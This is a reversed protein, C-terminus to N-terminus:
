LQFEGALELEAKRLEYRGRGSISQPQLALILFYEQSLMRIILTVRDLTVVLERMRGHGVDDSARQAARIVATAEAAAIDLNLENGAKLLLKEVAIGDTGMIMAGVSGEIQNLIRELTDKFM